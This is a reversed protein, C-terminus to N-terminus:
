SEYGSRGRSQKFNRRGWDIHYSPRYRNNRDWIDENPDIIREGLPQIFIHCLVESNLDREYGGKGDFGDPNYIWSYYSGGKKYSTDIIRVGWIVQNPAPDPLNNFIEWDPDNQYNMEISDGGGQLSLKKLENIAGAFDQAETDLPIDSQVKGEFEWVAKGDEDEYVAIEGLKKDAM